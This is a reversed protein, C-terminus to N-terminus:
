RTAASIKGQEHYEMIVTKAADLGRAVATAYGQAAMADLWARQGTRLKGGGRRRKLELWLGPYPGRRVPWVFDSVDACVGLRKNIQRQIIVARSRSRQERAGISFGSAPYHIFYRLDPIQLEMFRVWRVLAKHDEIETPNPRM